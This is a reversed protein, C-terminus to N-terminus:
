LRTAAGRDLRRVVAGGVANSMMGIYKAPDLTEGEHIPIAVRPSVRRVYDISEAIKLWPGDIAVALVRVDAAPEHFSDGPHFFAGGDILYGLNVCGPITEHVTAHRGGVVEVVTDGFRLAEGPEVMQHEPLGPMAEGIDGPVVLAARPSRARLTRVKEPDVHDPHKHTLLVADVREVGDIDSMVGPDILLRASGTDVLVCAHGLHTIHM